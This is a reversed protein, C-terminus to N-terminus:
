KNRQDTMLEDRPTLGQGVSPDKAAAAVGDIEDDLNEILREGLITDGKTVFATALRETYQEKIKSFLNEILRDSRVKELLEKRIQQQFPHFPSQQYIPNEM